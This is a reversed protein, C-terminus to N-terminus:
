HIHRNAHNLEFMESSVNQSVKQAWIKLPGKLVMSAVHAFSACKIHQEKSKSGLKWVYSKRNEISDITEAHVSLPDIWNPPGIVNTANLVLPVPNPTSYEAVILQNCFFILVFCQWLDMYIGRKVTRWSMGYSRKQQAPGTTQEFSLTEQLAFNNLGTERWMMEPARVLPECVIAACQGWICGEKHSACTQIANPIRYFAFV